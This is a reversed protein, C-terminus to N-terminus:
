FNLQPIFKRLTFNNLNFAFSINKISRKKQWMQLSYDTFTKSYVLPLYIEITNKLISLQLGANYLFKTGSSNKEWVEAYTGIDAFVRIPIKIPLMSLPNIKQPLDTVLNMSALWNDTRGPKSALLDTRFKFFGDRQLIQKAAAGEFENRGYFYTSYTYDEYGKPALLNLAFRDNKYQITTTKSKLYNIKGAFLRIWLGEINANYNFFQNVTFTTRLLDSNQEIQFLANYPYLASARKFNFQLQNLYYNSKEKNAQYFTDGPNQVLKFNLVDETSNFHKLQITKIFASTATKEKFTVKVFPVLKTFSLNLDVKEDKFKNQNFKEVNLGIDIREINSQKPYHNYAIKGFGNLNKTKFSYLPMLAYRITAEKPIYNTVGIGLMIGNYFNMGLLPLKIIKPTTSLNKIAGKNERLAIFPKYLSTSNKLISDFDKPTPHKFQWQTYYEQMASDLKKEGISYQVATLWETMKEYAIFNYNYSTFNLSNTNIPQDKKFATIIKLPKIVNELNASFYNGGHNNVPYKSQEYLKDYYSNMGEDMWPHERENTALIGQFWNHGLEHEIVMDLSNYNYKGAISTITPYEMGGSFGMPVDVVSATAFPYNGIKKSRFQLADKIFKTADKWIAKNKERYFSQCWVKKGNSLEVETNNVIFEKDAFWAFDVVNNQIYNLTKTTNSTAIRPTYNKKTNSSKIKTKELPPLIFENRRLLWQKEEENQLEGTAAVVYNSPVTINVKYNGFNSYFEGQDLYPMEHWGTADYVAVKPFWQAIQYSQEVHGGRSFNYPLKVHFPTTIITSANPPLPNDLYIKVIDIYNPHDETVLTNKAEQFNLRNIYGKEDDKSFYFKTSGNQLQQECFATKENKFANMWVHVWLFHLTDPSNNSYEITEFGDLTHLKDNLSVDITYNVQQQWYKQQASLLSFYLSFFLLVVTKQM